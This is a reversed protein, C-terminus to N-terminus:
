PEFYFCVGLIAIEDANVKAASKQFRLDATGNETDRVFEIATTKSTMLSTSGVQAFAVATSATATAFKASASWKPGEGGGAPSASGALVCMKLNSTINSNDFSPMFVRWGVHRSVATAIPLLGYWDILGQTPPTADVVLQGSSQYAGFCQALVPWSLEPEGTFVSQTHDMFGSTAPSVDGSDALTYAANGGVPWGRVFEWLWNANRSIRATLRAHLPLRPDFLTSDFDQWPTTPTISFPSDVRRQPASSAQTRRKRTPGAFLSYCRIQADPATDGPSLRTTTDAFILLLALTGAGSTGDTGNDTTEIRLEDFHGSAHARRTLDGQFLLSYDSEKRLEVRWPWVHLGTGTIVITMDTEGPPIFVPTAFIMTDVAPGGKAGVAGPNYYTLDVGWQGARDDRGSFAQNIWPIGLRAGRGPTGDHNVEETEGNQGTIKDYILALDGQVNELIREYTPSDVDVESAVAGRFTANKVRAM